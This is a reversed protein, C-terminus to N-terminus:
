LCGNSDTDSCVEFIVRATKVDMLYAVLSSVIGDERNFDIM